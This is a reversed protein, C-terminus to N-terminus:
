IIPRALVARVAEEDLQPFPILPQPDDHPALNLECWVVGIWRGNKYGIEPFVAVRRFGLRDHVRLSTENSATIAGYVNRVNQMRLLPFLKDYLRRSLGQGRAERDLYITLEASWQYAARERVRHACAYGLAKGRSEYVLYPFELLTDTIRKEFTERDPLTLEFTIDTDIYQGYIARLAEADAPGALRIIDKM